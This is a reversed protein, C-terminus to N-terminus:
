NRIFLIVGTEYISLQVAHWINEGREHQLVNDQSTTSIGNSAFDMVASWSL